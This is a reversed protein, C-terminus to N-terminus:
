AYRWGDIIYGSAFPQGPATVVICNHEMVTGVAAAGWHLELTKLHLEKLQVGIDHTWQFCYGRQRVGIHILFNQFVPPGVVRYERALERATAHATRAVAEAETPDVDPSLITLADSLQRTSKADDALASSACVLATTCVLLARM